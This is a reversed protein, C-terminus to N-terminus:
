FEWAEKVNGRSDLVEARAHDLCFLRVRKEGDEYMRTIYPNQTLYDRVIAEDTEPVAVADIRMFEGKGMVLIEVKPNALMQQYVKKHGGTAIYLKGNIVEHSAFPRGKPQDGDATLLYYVNAKKLLEQTKEINTM